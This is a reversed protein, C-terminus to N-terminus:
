PDRVFISCIGPRPLQNTRVTRQRVPSRATNRRCGGSRDPRGLAPSPPARSASPGRSPPGFAQRAPDPCAARRWPDPGVLRAPWSPGGPIRPRWRMTAQSDRSDHREDSPRAANKWSAQTGGPKYSCYTVVNPRIMLARVAVACSLLTWSSPANQRSGPVSPRAELRPRAVPRGSRRAHCVPVFLNARHVVRRKKRGTLFCSVRRRSASTMAQNM